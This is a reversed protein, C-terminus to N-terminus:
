PAPALDAATRGREFAADLGDAGLAAVAAQRVREVDDQQFPAV